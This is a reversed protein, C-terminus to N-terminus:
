FHYEAWHWKPAIRVRSSVQIRKFESIMYWLCREAPSLIPHCDGTVDSDFKTLFVSIIGSIGCGTSSEWKNVQILRNYDLHTPEVHQNDIVTASRYRRGFYRSSAPFCLSAVASCVTLIVSGVWSSEVEVRRPTVTQRPIGRCPNIWRERGWM